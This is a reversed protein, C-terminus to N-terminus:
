EGGEERTGYVHFLTCAILVGLTSKLVVRWGPSLSINDWMSTCPQNVGGQRLSEIEEEMERIRAALELLGEPTAFVGSSPAPVNAGIPQFYESLDTQTHAQAPVLLLVLVLVTITTLTRM